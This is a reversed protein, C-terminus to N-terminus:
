YHDNVYRLATQAARLLDEDSKKTAYDVCYSAHHRARHRAFRWTKPDVEGYVDLFRGFYRSPIMMHVVSLDVAPNGYHLDGWDIVGHLRSNDDLILHRAYLDGHVVTHKGDLPEEDIQLRKPDLKGIDDNPLPPQFQAPDISHLAHLFHGLDEALAGRQELSLDRSCATDGPVREYGAFRWPYDQAANGKFIPATTQVPVKTAIEPLFNIEREILSSAVERQPFRFIYKGDVLYAVNDWGQSYHEVPAQAFQPFQTAILSHAENADVTRDPTWPESM